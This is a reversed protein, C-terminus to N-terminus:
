RGGRAVREIETRVLREVLIPLNDDLWAKLMPKLMDRVMEGLVDNSQLFRSAILTNFAQSVMADTAPSVLAEETVVPAPSAVSTSPASRPGPALRRPNERREVPSEVPRPAAERSFAPREAVPTRAALPRYERGPVFDFGSRLPPTPEAPAPQPAAPIDTWGEVREAEYDRTLEIPAETILPPEPAIEPPSAPMLPEAAAQPPAAHDDAIIRRISALIEEM